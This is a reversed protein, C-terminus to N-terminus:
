LCERSDFAALQLVDPQMEVVGHVQKGPQRLVRQRADVQNVGIWPRFLPMPLPAEHLVGRHRPEGADQSWAPCETEHRINGIIGGPGQLAQQARRIEFPRRLAGVIPSFRPGAEDVRAVVGLGRAFLARRAKQNETFNSRWGGFSVPKGFRGFAYWAGRRRTRFGNMTPSPPISGMRRAKPM